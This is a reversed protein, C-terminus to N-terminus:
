AIGYAIGIKRLFVLYRDIIDKSSRAPWKTECFVLRSV